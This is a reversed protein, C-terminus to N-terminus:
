ELYGKDPMFGHRLLIEGAARVVGIPMYSGAHLRPPASAAARPGHAFFHDMAKNANAFANGDPMGKVLSFGEQVVGSLRDSLRRGADLRGASIDGIVQRLERAFCNAASLLFGSYPGGTASLWRAYDGEAGRVTFVGGLNKGSLAVRDSGSTDKFFIFNEFRMALDWAVEPSMENQTVQPLQYIATPLGLELIFALANCIEEQPLDKGWPPCVTFGCVRAKVLANDTDRENVQLKLWAMDERIVALAEATTAKLAGILLRLKLRQAQEIAVALVRLREADSLEWGDGTSGPILFGRVFPSIHRFHAAMRSSDIAGSHDYHTLPPCWLLPVGEPLLGQLLHARNRIAPPFADMTQMQIEFFSM